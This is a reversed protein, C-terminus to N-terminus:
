VVVGILYGAVAGCLAMSVMMTRWVRRTVTVPAKIKSMQREIKRSPYAIHETAPKPDPIRDGVEIQEAILLNKHYGM